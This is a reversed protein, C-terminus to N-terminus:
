VGWLDPNWPKHLSRLFPLKNRQSTKEGERSGNRRRRGEAGCRKEKEHHKQPQDVSNPQTLATRQLYFEGTFMVATEYLESQPSVPISESSGRSTFINTKFEEFWSPEHNEAPQIIDSFAKEHRHMVSVIWQTNLNESTTDPASIRPSPLHSPASRRARVLLTRRPPCSSARAWRDSWPQLPRHAVPAEFRAWVRQKLWDLQGWQM